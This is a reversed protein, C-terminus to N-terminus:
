ELKLLRKVCALVKSPEVPKTLSDDAGAEIARQRERDAGETTIVVMPLEALHKEARALGILRVGDMVPMNIDVIALHFPESTLKRLGDMGDEAEVVEINKLRGLAVILLKRMTPSDEIILIRHREM